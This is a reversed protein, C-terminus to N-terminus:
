RRRSSARSRRADAGAVRGRHGGAQRGRHRRPPRRQRRDAQRHRARAADARRVALMTGLTRAFRGVNITRVLQGLVPLKLVFRHWIPKGDKRARGSAHVPHRRRRDGLLIACGTAASSARRDLDPVAHQAAADQGAAHVDLHDGPDGQDDARAMIGAGVVVMVIPYIMAGQVKSKLKQSSELFDALRTLVEDLNGAVEGARVMSVFLEDFLKPHKALADALSCARTSRPASRPRAADQLPREDIQEVLAGLAEALPIGAKLLTAMQRTFAAIEAKKVGGFCAASISTARCAARRRTRSRRRRAARAVARLEHRARRGQAPGPAAGQAVRRRARRHRGQREPAVGKYAYMPM